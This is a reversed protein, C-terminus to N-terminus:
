PDHAHRGDPAEAVVTQALAVRSRRIFRGARWAGYSAPALVPLGISLLLWPAYFVHSTAPAAGAESSLQVEAEANM